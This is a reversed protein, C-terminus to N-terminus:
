STQLCVILYFSASQRSPRVIGVTRSPVLFGNSPSFVPYSLKAKQWPLTNSTGLPESSNQKYQLPHPLNQSNRMRLNEVLCFGGNPEPNKWSKALIGWKGAYTLDSCPHWTSLFVAAIINAVSELMALVSLSHNTVNRLSIPCGSHWLIGTVCFQPTNWAWDPSCPPYPFGQHRTSWQQHQM